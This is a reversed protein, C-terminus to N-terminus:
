SFATDTVRGGRRFCRLRAGLRGALALPAAFTSRYGSIGGTFVLAGLRSAEVRPSGAVEPVPRGRSPGEVPRAKWPVPRGRSPGEVPRAKWPVPREPLRANGASRRVPRARGKALGPVAKSCGV